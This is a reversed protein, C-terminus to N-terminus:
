IGIGHENTTTTTKYKIIVAKDDLELITQYMKQLLQRYTDLNSKLLDLSFEYYIEKENVIWRESDLEFEVRKSPSPTVEKQQNIKSQLTTQGTTRTSTPRTRTM